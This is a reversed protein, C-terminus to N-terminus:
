RRWRGVREFFSTSIDADGMEVNRFWPNNNRTVGSGAGDVPWQLLGLM